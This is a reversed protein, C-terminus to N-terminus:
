WSPSPRRPDAAHLHELPEWDSMARARSIHGSRFHSLPPRSLKDPPRVNATIGLPKSL